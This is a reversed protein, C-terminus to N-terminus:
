QLEMEADDAEPKVDPNPSDPVDITGTGGSTGGSVHYLDASIDKLEPLAKPFPAGTVDGTSIEELAQVVIATAYKSEVRVVKLVGIPRNEYGELNRSLGSEGERSISLLDGMRIGAEQGLDLFVVGFEGFAGRRREFEGGLIKARISSRPGSFTADIKPLPEESVTAGKPIPAIAGIIHGKFLKKDADITDVIEVIGGVDIIYGKSFIGDDRVALLSLKEGMQMPRRGNIVVYQGHSATLESGEIDQIEGVSTPKSDSLYCPLFSIPEEKIPPNKIIQVGARNFGKQQVQLQVFSGPLKRLPKTRQKPDPIEPKPLLADPDINQDTVTGMDEKFTPAKIEEVKPPKFGSALSPEPGVPNEVSIQPEKAETGAIFRIEQSPTIRHPNYIADNEAWLKSWFFGDGFLTKSLDWLTDGTQIVYLDTGQRATLQQWQSDDVPQQKQYIEHLKQEYQENPADAAWGRAGVFILGLVLTKKNM